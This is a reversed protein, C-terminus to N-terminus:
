KKEKSLREIELILSNLRAATDNIEKQLEETIKNLEERKEEILTKASEIDRELYVGAGVDVLLRGTESLRAYSFVGSGIPVLIDNGEKAKEIDKLAEMTTELELHKRDIIAAEQGLQEFHKEVLQYLIVKEQLEKEKNETM